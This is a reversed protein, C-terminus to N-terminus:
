LTTDSEAQLACGYDFILCLVWVIGAAIFGIAGTFAGVALLAIALRKFEKVINKRFPSGNEKLIRFINKAYILAIVVGITRLIEELMFEPYWERIIPISAPTGGFLEVTPLKVTIDGLQFITPAEALALIWAAFELAGIVIFVVFAIKLLIYVVKSFKKIKETQNGMKEM